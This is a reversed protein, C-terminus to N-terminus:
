GVAEVAMEEVADMGMAIRKEAWAEARRAEEEATGCEAIRTRYYCVISIREPPRDAARDHESGLYEYCREHARPDSPPGIREDCWNCFMATNGHWQHADMLLLDGDQMDIGVRYEAFTFIGGRYSGRRLVTLNSFGEELDGKDTHVGTPYSNNVTITTFPTGPVVWDEATRNVYAMQQQHLDPVHEAFADGIGGFLPFLSAFKENEKGTFATLRCYNKPPKADFAGVIASAVPESYTRTGEAFAKHRQTGSALGRNTTEYERLSHLVDYYQVLDDSAFHRPLYKCLMKGDPRYVATPGTLVVDLDGETLVKGKIAELQDPHIKTRVRLETFNM